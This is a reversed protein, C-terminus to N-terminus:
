KRRWCTTKSIAVCTWQSQVRVPLPTFMNYIRVFQLFERCTQVAAKPVHKSSLWAIVDLEKSRKTKEGACCFTICPVIHIVSMSTIYLLLQEQFWKKLLKANKDTHYYTNSKSKSLIIGEEPSEVHCIIKVLLSKHAVHVTV